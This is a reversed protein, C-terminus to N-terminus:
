GAASTPSSTLRLDELLVDVVAEEAIALERRCMVDTLAPDWSAAVPTELLDRDNRSAKSAAAEYDSAGYRWAQAGWTRQVYNGINLGAWDFDGHYYLRAGAGMLQDLLVRQAAAPMGDTCVLPECKAGLRDAAIAVINPNECVYVARDEVAWAPPRRVLRRLSVFAPEGAPALKRTARVPVNMFLAPRALENVFVGQRAWTERSSEGPLDPGNEDGPLAICDSGEQALRQRRCVALVLTAVPQGNDLGHANGLVDAALQARPIGGAPLRSLIASAHQLLRGAVHLDKRALRKLLGLSSAERLFDVLRPQSCGEGLALWRAEQEAKAVVSVIPGDLHELAERLSAAIGSSRLTEDVAAVDLVISQASSVPRGTLLALAEYEGPLLRTLRLTPPSADTPLRSYRERMRRRLSLLAQGGLLNQLREDSTNQM